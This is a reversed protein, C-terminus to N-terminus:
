SSLFSFVHFLRLVPFCKCGTAVAFTKDAGKSRFHHYDSCRVKFPNPFKSFLCDMEVAGRAGSSELLVCFGVVCFGMLWCVVLSGFTMLNNRM